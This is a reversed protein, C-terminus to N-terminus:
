FPRAGPPASQMMMNTAPAQPFQQSAIRQTPGMPGLPDPPMAFAANSNAMVKSSVSHADSRVLYDTTSKVQVQSVAGYNQAIWAAYTNVEPLRQRDEGRHLYTAIPRVVPHRLRQEEDTFESVGKPIPLGGAYIGKPAVHTPRCWIYSVDERKEALARAKYFAETPNWNREWGETTMLPPPPRGLGAPRLGAADTGRGAARLAPPQM